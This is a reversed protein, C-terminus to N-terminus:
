VAPSKELPLAESVEDDRTPVQATVVRPWGSGLCSVGIMVCPIWHCKRDAFKYRTMRWRRIGIRDTAETLRDVIWYVVSHPGKPRGFRGVNAM